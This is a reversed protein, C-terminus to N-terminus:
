KQSKLLAANSSTYVVSEQIDEVTECVAGKANQQNSAMMNNSSATQLQVNNYLRKENISPNPQGSTKSM